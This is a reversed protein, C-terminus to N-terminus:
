LWSPVDFWAASLWSVSVHLRGNCILPVSSAGDTLMEAQGGRRYQPVPLIYVAGDQRGDHLLWFNQLQALRVQPGFVDVGVM